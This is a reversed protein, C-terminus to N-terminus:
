GSSCDSSSVGPESARSVWHGPAACAAMLASTLAAAGDVVPAYITKMTEATERARKEFAVISANYKKVMKEATHGVDAIETKWEEVGDRMNRFQKKMVDLAALKGALSRNTIVALFTKGFIEVGTVAEVMGVRLKDIWEVIMGVGHITSRVFNQVDQKLSGFGSGVKSAQNFLTDLVPGVGLAIANRLGQLAATARTIADKVLVMKSTDIENLAIGFGRAEAFMAKLGEEGAALTNVLAVGESDFLKFSLRVREGQQQVKTMAGALALFQEDAGLRAVARASVGLQKIADKAEGTGMAAEAIRRVMRQLGMNFTRVEVGTLKAAHQLQALAATGVGLKQATKGLLDVEDVTRKILLGLGASGALTGFATRFNLLRRGAARVAGGFRTITKRAGRMRKQFQGTTAILKYNLKGITPM